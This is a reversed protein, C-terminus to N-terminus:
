STRLMVTGAARDHMARGSADIVLAPAVVALLVTRLLVWQPKQRKGDAARVVGIGLARMGPTQGLFTIFLFEIGLFVLYTVLNQRDGVHYGGNIAIAILVSLIADVVYAGLRAGFTAVSGPGFAPYTPDVEAYMKPAGKSASSDNSQAV